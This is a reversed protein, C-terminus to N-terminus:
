KNAAVEPAPKNAELQMSVKRLLSAQEKLSATLSKIEDQQDTAAKAQAAVTAELTFNSAELKATAAELKSNSAELKSVKAHEKLFENLLMAYVAQYHVSYIKGHGDHVVLAPNVKQVEEAVLGFQQVGGPDIEHKYRFTVPRLSLLQDSTDGMDRIDQKFRESSAVTGIKGTSDIGLDIGTQSNISEGYAGAIYASTQEGQIGIRITNNDGSAGATNIEINNNGTTIDYGASNGIGVNNSGTTVNGLAVIGVATNDSGSADSYLADTGFGSNDSGTTALLLANFGFASNYSGSTNDYLASAGAATNRYGTTNYYLVSLGLADNAFGTTNSYLSNYGFAANNSGTTNLYLAYAGSATNNFGSTDTHLSDFGTATNDSANAGALAGVGDATNYYGAKNDLLANDGTATNYAGTTTYHLADYGFASDETGSTSGSELAGTGYDTNYAAKSAAPSIILALTLM